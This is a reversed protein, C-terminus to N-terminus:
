PTAYRPMLLPSFARQRSPTSFAYAARTARMMDAYIAALMTAADPALPSIAAYAAAAAIAYPM